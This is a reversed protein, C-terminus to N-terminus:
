HLPQQAVSRRRYVVCFEEESYPLVRMLEEGM